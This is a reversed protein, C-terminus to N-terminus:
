QVSVQNKIKDYVSQRLVHKRLLDEVSRYPRHRVIARGIRGAGPIRDLEAVSATNLDLGATARLVADINPQLGSSPAQPQTAPADDRPDPDAPPPAADAADRQPTPQPAVTENSPPYVVRVAKEVDAPGGARSVVATLVDPRLGLPDRASAFALGAILLIAFTVFLRRM